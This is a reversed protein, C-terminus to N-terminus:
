KTQDRKAQSKMGAIEASASLSSAPGGSALDGSRKLGSLLSAVFQRSLQYQVCSGVRRCDWRSQAAWGLTALFSSGQSIAPPSFLGLSPQTWDGRMRTTVTGRRSLLPELERVDNAGNWAAEETGAGDLKRFTSYDLWLAVASCSPPHPSSEPPLRTLAFRRERSRPVQSPTRRRLRRVHTPASREPHRSLNM